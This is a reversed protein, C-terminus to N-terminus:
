NSWYYRSFLFNPGCFQGKPGYYFMIWDWVTNLDFLFQYLELVCRRRAGRGPQLVSYLHCMNRSNVDQSIGSCIYPDGRFYVRNIVSRSTILASILSPRSNQTTKIGNLIHILQFHTATPYNACIRTASLCHPIDKRATSAPPM